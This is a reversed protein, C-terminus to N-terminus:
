FSVESLKNKCTTLEVAAAQAKDRAEKEAKELVERQKALMRVECRLNSVHIRAKTYDEDTLDATPDVKRLQDDLKTGLIVGVEHLERFLTTVREQHKRKEAATTDHLHHLEKSKSEISQQNLSLPLSM